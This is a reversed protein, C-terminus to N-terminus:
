TGYKRIMDTLDNTHKDVFNHFSFDHYVGNWVFGCGGIMESDISADIILFPDINRRLWKGINEFESNSFMVPFYMSIVSLGSLEKKLDEIGNDMNGKELRTYFDDGWALLANGEDTNEKKEEKLFAVLPSEASSTDHGSFHAHDLFAELLGIRRKMDAITYTNSLIIEAQNSIKM